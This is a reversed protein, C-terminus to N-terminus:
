TRLKLSVFIQRTSVEAGPTGAEEGGTTEIEEVLASEFGWNEGSLRRTAKAVSREPSDSIQSASGSPAFATWSVEM